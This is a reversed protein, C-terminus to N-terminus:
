FNKKEINKLSELFIKKLLKSNKEIFENLYLKKSTKKYNFIVETQM